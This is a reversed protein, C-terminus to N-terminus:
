MKHRKLFKLLNMPMFQQYCEKVIESVITVDGSKDRITFQTSEGKSILRAILLPRDIKEWFFFFSSFLM